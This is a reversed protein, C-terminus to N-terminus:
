SNEGYLVDDISSSLDTPGSLGLEHGLKALGLLADGTSLRREGAGYKAEFGQDVLERILEAEPRKEMKAKLRIKQFQDGRLYVQTRIM